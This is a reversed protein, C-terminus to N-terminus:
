FGEDVVCYYAKYDGAEGVIRYWSTYIRSTYDFPRYDCPVYRFRKFWDKADEKDQLFDPLIEKFVCNGNEYVHVISIETDPKRNLYERLNRKLDAIKQKLDPRNNDLHRIIMYALEANDKTRVDFM